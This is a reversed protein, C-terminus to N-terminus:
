SADMRRLLGDVFVASEPFLERERVLAEHAAAADGQLWHLYGLHAWLGPPVRRGEAAAREVDERLRALQTTPDATGPEIWSAYLLDEYHGWHYLSPTACGAGFVAVFLLPALRRRVIPRQPAV